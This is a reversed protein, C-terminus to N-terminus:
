ASAGVEAGCHDAGCAEDIGIGRLFAVDHHDAVALILARPEVFCQPADAVLADGNRRDSDARRAAAGDRAGVACVQAVVVAFDHLRVRMRFHELM